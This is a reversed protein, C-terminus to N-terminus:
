DHSLDDNRGHVEQFVLLKVWLSSKRIQALSSHRLWNCYLCVRVKLRWRTESVNTAQHPLGHIMGFCKTQRAFDDLDGGACVRAISHGLLSLNIIELMLGLAVCIQRWPRM